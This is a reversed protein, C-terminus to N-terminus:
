EIALVRVVNLERDQELDFAAVWRDKDVLYTFASIDKHEQRFIDEICGGEAFVILYKGDGAIEELIEEKSDYRYAYPELFKSLNDTLIKPGKM